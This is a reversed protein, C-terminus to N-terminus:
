ALDQAPTPVSQQTRRGRRFKWVGYAIGVVVLGAYVWLIKSSWGDLDRQWLRVIHRGYTIGLWALLGYRIMRAAGYFFLYRGRTVGLAGAALLVPTLPIPPPLLAAVGVAIAGHRKVWGTIRSLFRQPVNRELAM